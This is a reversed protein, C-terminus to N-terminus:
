PIGGDPNRTFAYEIRILAGPPPVYNGLFAISQTEPRYQWGNVIDESVPVGNVTM